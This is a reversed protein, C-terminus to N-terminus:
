GSASVGNETKGVKEDVIKEVGEDECTFDGFDLIVKARASSPLFQDKPLLEDKLLATNERLSKTWAAAVILGFIFLIKYSM